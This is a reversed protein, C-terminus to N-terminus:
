AQIKSPRLGETMRARPQRAFFGSNKQSFRLRHALPVVVHVDHATESSREIGANGVIELAPDELVLFVRGARERAAVPHVPQHVVLLETVNILRDSALLLALVYRPFLLDLQEFRDVRLPPIQALLSLCGFGSDPIGRAAALRPFSLPPSCWGGRVLCAGSWQALTWSHCKHSMILGRVLPLNPPPLRLIPLSNVFCSM